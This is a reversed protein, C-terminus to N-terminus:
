SHLLGLFDELNNKAILSLCENGNGNMPSSFQALGSQGFGNHFTTQGLGIPPGLRGMLSM